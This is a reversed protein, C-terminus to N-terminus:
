EPVAQALRILKVVGEPLTETRFEIRSRESLEKCRFVFSVLGSDWRGLSSTDFALAKVDRDGALEQKVTEVGPLGVRSFGIVRSGSACHVM